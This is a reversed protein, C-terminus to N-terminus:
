PFTSRLLTEHVAQAFAIDCQVGEASSKTIL